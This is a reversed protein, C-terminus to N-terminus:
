RVVRRPPAIRSWAWHRQRIADLGVLADLEKPMATVRNLSTSAASMTTPEERGHGLAVPGLVIPSIM